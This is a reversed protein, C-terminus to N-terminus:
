ALVESFPAHNALAQAIKRAAGALAERDEAAISLRVAHDTNARGVAFVDSALFLVGSSHSWRTFEDKTWPDPLELWAHPAHAATRIKQHGLIQRVVANRRALESRNEQLIRAATGSTIMRTAAEAALPSAMWSTGHLAAAIKGTMPAPVDLYGVRLGPGLTKSLGTLRVVREPSLSALPSPKTELLGGYVDDEIIIVDHRHAIQVLAHRREEPLTATTPNQLNPVCVLVKIRQAACAAEFSDPRMGHEDIDIPVLRLGLLPAAAKFSSYTLRETAVADGHDCLALLACFLAHQAGNCVFLRDPEAAYGSTTAFWTAGAERHHAHGGGYVYELWAGFGPNQACETLAHQIEWAWTSLPARHGRLDISRGSDVAGQPRSMELDIDLRVHTGRRTGADLLKERIVEGFARSVTSVTVGLEAALDRHGPLRDGPRLTGNRIDAIMANAIREFMPGTSGELNPKWTM